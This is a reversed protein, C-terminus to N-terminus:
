ITNSFPLGVPGEAMLSAALRRGYLRRSYTAELIIVDSADLDVDPFATM